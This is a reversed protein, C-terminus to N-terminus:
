QNVMMLRSTARSSLCGWNISQYISQLSKRRTASMKM